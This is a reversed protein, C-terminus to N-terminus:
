KRPFEKELKEWLSKSLRSNLNKRIWEIDWVYIKPPDDIQRDKINYSEEIPLSMKDVDNKKRRNFFFEIQKNSSVFNYIVLLLITILLLLFIKHFKKRFITKM